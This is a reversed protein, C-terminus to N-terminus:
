RQQTTPALTSAAWMILDDGRGRFWFNTVAKGVQTWARYIANEIWLVEFNLHDMKLTPFNHPHGFGQNVSLVNKSLGRRGTQGKNEM